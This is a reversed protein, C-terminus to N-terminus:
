ALPSGFFCSYRDPYTTNAPCSPVPDKLYYGMWYCVDFTPNIGSTFAYSSEVALQQDYSDYYVMDFSPGLSACKQRADLWPHSYNKYLAPDTGLLVFLQQSTENYFHNWKGSLVEM